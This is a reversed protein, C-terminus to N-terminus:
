IRKIIGTNRLHYIFLRKKYKSLEIHYYLKVYIIQIVLLYFCYYYLHYASKAFNM